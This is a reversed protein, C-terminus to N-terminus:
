HERDVFFRISGVSKSMQSDANVNMLTLAFRKTPPVTLTAMFLPHSEIRGKMKISFQNM